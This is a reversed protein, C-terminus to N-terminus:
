TGCAAGTLRACWSDPRNGRWQALRAATEVTGEEHQVNVKDEGCAMENRTNPPQWRPSFGERSGVNRGRGPGRGVACQCAEVSPPAQWKGRCVQMGEANVVWLALCHQHSWCGVQLKSAAVGRGALTIVAIKRLVGPEWSSPAQDGDCHRRISLASGDQARERSSQARNREITCARGSKSGNKSWSPGAPCCKPHRYFRQRDPSRGAAPRRAQLRASAQLPGGLAAQGGPGNGGWGRGDLPGALHHLPQLHRYLGAAGLNIQAASPPAAVGAAPRRVAGPQGKAQRTAQRCSDPAGSCFTWSCVTTRSPRSTSKVTAAVGSCGPSTARRMGSCRITVRSRTSSSLVKASSSVVPLSLPSRILPHLTHGSFMYKEAAALM